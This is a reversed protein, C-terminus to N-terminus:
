KGCIPNMKLLFKKELDISAPDRLAELYPEFEAVLEEHFRTRNVAIDGNDFKMLPGSIRVTM